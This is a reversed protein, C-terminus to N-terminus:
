GKQPSYSDLFAGPTIISIGQYAKLGLLHKDGSIIFEARSAVACELLRNDADDNIVNLREETNVMESFNMIQRVASRARDQDWGLKKQLIREIEAVIQHSTCNVIKKRRALLVLEGPRSEPLYLASVFVNTDIVVKIPM